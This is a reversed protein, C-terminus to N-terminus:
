HLNIEHLRYVTITYYILVTITKQEEHISVVHM